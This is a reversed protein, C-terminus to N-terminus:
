LIEKMEVRRNEYVAKRVLLGTLTALRGNMVNSVPPTGTRVSKFFADVSQQTASADGGDTPAIEIPKDKPDRPYYKCEVPYFGLAIGGKLGVFREWIGMFRGEDHHPCRWNHEFDAIMGNAFELHAVYFDTVDREPDEKKFLDRRGRGSAAVPAAGAVWCFVDWTHCAQELMWDGSRQRRGFWIQTGTGPMGLPGGSIRWCGRAEFPADIMGDHIKRIGAQYFHSARRQFGIQCIVKPNKKQAEVLADAEAVAICMPKEGYFHRGAAFCDLYIKAHADCPVAVFVADIDDRALLKKYGEAGDYVEPLDGGRNSLKDLTKEVNPEDPDTMARIEIKPDKLSADVLNNGRGGVGIFGLRLKQDAVIPEPEPGAKVMLAPEADAAHAVASVLGAAGAMKASAALFDRRTSSTMKDM